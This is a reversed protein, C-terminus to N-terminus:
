IILFDKRRKINGKIIQIEYHDDNVAYKVFKRVLTM